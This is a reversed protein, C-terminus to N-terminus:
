DPAFSKLYKLKILKDQNDQRLMYGGIILFDVDSNLFCVVADEPSCVIPEGRVNFSTNLLIPCGTKKYFRELLSRYFRCGAEKGITQIRASYDVHTIAPVTSIDSDLRIGNEFNLENENKLRYKNKLQATLLMYPSPTNIEFWNSNEEELIVPAFPRFSERKKIKLNLDKAINKSRPDAVISRAGLARPGYEMRDDFVALSHGSILLESATELMDENNLEEYTVNMRSLTNKIETDDFSPGLLSGKMIDSDNIKVDKDEYYGLLAAGLAGGADGAAPQIWLNLDEINKLLFGNAVCNLAVGGSMCLNNTSATKLAFCAMKLIVNNIVSQLSAAIDAHFQQVSEDAERRKKGFLNVFEETIPAHGVFGDFYKQDLLFSGDDNVKIINDYILKEYVPKGYPALGMVKYEGSNVKFGLYYTFATYMLGLSNPYTMSKIPRIEAGDGIAVTATVKEGVGDVTIIAAKEFPSPYFASAAHSAHHPVFKLKSRWDISSDIIELESIIKETIKSKYLVWERISESFRESYKESYCYFSNIIRQLKLDHQEYFVVKEIEEDVTSLCYRVANSPFSSDNKIRTFREEQAAGTIEGSSSVVAASSDHFYASIGLISM